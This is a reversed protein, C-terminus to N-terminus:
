KAVRPASDRRTVSSAQLRDILKKAATCPQHLLRSRFVGEKTLPRGPEVAEARRRLARRGAKGEQEHRREDISPVHEIEPFFRAKGAGHHARPDVREAEVPA